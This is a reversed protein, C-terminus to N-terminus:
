NRAGSIHCLVNPYLITVFMFKVTHVWSGWSDVHCKVHGEVRVQDKRVKVRFILELM